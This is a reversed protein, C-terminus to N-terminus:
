PKYTTKLARRQPMQPQAPPPSQWGRAIGNPYAQASAAESGSFAQLRELLGPQGSGLDPRHMFQQNPGAQPKAWKMMEQFQAAGAM